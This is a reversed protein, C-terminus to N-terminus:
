SVAEKVRVFFQNRTSYARTLKKSEEFFSQIEKQFYEWLQGQDELLTWIRDLNKWRKEKGNVVQSLVVSQVSLGYDNVFHENDKEDVNIAKMTITGDALQQAFGIEVADRTIEELLTCSPCRATRHFYYVIVTSTNNQPPGAFADAFGFIMLIVLVILVKRM